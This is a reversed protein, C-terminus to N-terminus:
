QKFRLIGAVGGMEKLQQGRRTHSSIVEVDTGMQEAMKVLEDMLDKEAVPEMNGHCNPCERSKLDDRHIVDDQQHGCSCEYHVRIYNFDESILLLEMNGAKMAEVVERLGYTALGTDKAFHDFFTELIKGERVVSAEKIVDESREVLEHLGHEGMYATPVIGLVMNKLDHALFDGEAFMEKIPGSGGIIIGKLDRMDKFQSTAVEGVKKMFDHLLGERVRSFRAASQGGAKTKGPVMSEMHKLLTVRKGQLVGIDAESKDVMLLGYVEKERVMDKLADVLFVQDCRYIRTKLPEPPEIAWLELDSVGEQQSVNGCFVALGNAPTDKYLRLHQLVKELAASVNKRVTKSKINQATGQEQRLQNVVNNLGYGAPVLVTVLETHRGRIKELEGILAKLKQNRTDIM